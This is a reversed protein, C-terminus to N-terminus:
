KTSVVCNNMRKTKPNPNKNKKRAHTHKHTRTVREWIQPSKIKNTVRWEDYHDYKPKFNYAFKSDNTQTRRGGHLHVRDILTRPVFQGSRLGAVVLLVTPGVSASTQLLLLLLFLLFHLIHKERDTQIRGSRGGRGTSVVARRLLACALLIVLLDMMVGSLHM